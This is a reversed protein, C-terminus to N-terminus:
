ENPHSPTFVTGFFGSFGHLFTNKIANGLNPFYGRQDLIEQSGPLGRYDEAALEPNESPNYPGLFKELADALSKCEDGQERVYSGFEAGLRNSRYDERTM